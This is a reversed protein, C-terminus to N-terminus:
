EDENRGNMIRRIKYAYYFVFLWPFLIFPMIGGLPLYPTRGRNLVRRLEGPDVLDLGDVTSIKLPYFSGKGDQLLFGEMYVYARKGVTAYYMISPAVRRQTRYVHGTDTHFIFNVSKRLGSYEEKQELIGKEKILPAVPPISGSYVQRDLRPVIPYMLLMALAFMIWASKLQHNGGLVTARGLLMLKFAALWSIKINNSM